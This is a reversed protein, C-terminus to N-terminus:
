LVPVQCVLTSLMSLPWLAWTLRGGHGVELGGAVEVGVRPVVEGFAPDVVVVLLIKAAHQLNVALADKVHEGGVLVLVKLKYTEQRGREGKERMVHGSNPRPNSM